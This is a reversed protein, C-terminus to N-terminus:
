WASRVAVLAVVTLAVLILPDVAPLHDPVDRRRRDARWLLRRHNRAHHRHPRLNIVTLVGILMSIRTGYILRSLYDRGIQNTGLLHAPQSGGDVGPPILRQNLDRLSLIM